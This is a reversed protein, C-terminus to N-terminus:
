GWIKTMLCFIMTKILLLLYDASSFNRWYSVPGFITGTWHRINDGVLQAQV